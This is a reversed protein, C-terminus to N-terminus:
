NAPSLLFDGADGVGDGDMFNNDQDCYDVFGGVDDLDGFIGGGSNVGRNLDGGFNYNNTGKGPTNGLGPYVPDCLQDDFNLDDSEGIGPFAPPMKEFEM